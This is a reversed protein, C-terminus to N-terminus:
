FFSVFRTMRLWLTLRAHFYESSSEPYLIREISPTQYLAHYRSYVHLNPCDSCFLTRYFYDYFIDYALKM